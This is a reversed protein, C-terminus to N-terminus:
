KAEGEARAAALKAAARIALEYGLAGLGAVIGTAARSVFSHHRFPERRYVHSM